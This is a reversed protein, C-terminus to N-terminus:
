QRRAQDLGRLDSTGLLQTTKPNTVFFIQQAKLARHGHSCFVSGLLGQASKGSMDTLHHLIHNSYGNDSFETISGIGKKQFSLHGTPLHILSMAGVINLITGLHRALLLSTLSARRFRWQIESIFPVIETLTM